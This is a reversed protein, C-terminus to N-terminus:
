MDLQKEQTVKNLSEDFLLVYESSNSVSKQLMELFHPAIGFNVLYRCKDVGLSFKAAIASDPFMIRFLSAKNEMSKFSYHNEVMDVAAIIEAKRVDETNTYQQLLTKRANGSPTVNPTVPSSQEPTAPHLLHHKRRFFVLLQRHM